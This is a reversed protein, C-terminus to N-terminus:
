PELMADDWNDVDGYFKRDPDLSERMWEVSRELSYGEEFKTVGFEKMDELFKDIVLDRGPYDLPMKYIELYRFWLTFKRVAREQQPTAAVSALRSYLTRYKELGDFDLTTFLKEAHTSFYLHEGSAEFDRRYEEMIKKVLGAGCGYVGALFEDIIVNEDEYPAWMLRALLYAKLEACYGGNSLYSGQEFVGKVGNEYFFRLNAVIVSLDPRPIMFHLFNTCYDWIYMHECQRAWRGLEHPFTRDRMGDPTAPWTQCNDSLPHSFCCEIDCMRVIVNKHPRISKPARYSYSYAFTDIFKDPFEDHVAEAIKNVFAIIPGSAAGEAEEIARCAPCECRNQCDNQSVSFITADPMTRMWERVKETAIRLVDPNTLCLQTHEKVRKGGVMSFYEPHEDFYKDPPVLENFTHCFRGYTMKGGRAEDLAAANSNARNRVAWDGDFAEFFFPERYEFAPESIQAISPLTLEARRPISSIESTFWRCGLYDTLFGYVAYLTGRSGKGALLLRKYDTRIYYGENKINEMRRAYKDTRNSLGVLIETDARPEDDAAIPFEAGTIEGLFRALEEAAHRDPQSASASIIIKYDTRGSAALQIM